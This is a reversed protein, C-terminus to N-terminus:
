RRASPRQSEQDPSAFGAGLVLVLAMSFPAQYLPDHALSLLGFFAIASQAAASPASRAGIRVVCWGLLVIFLLAGPIGTEAAMSLFQNHSKGTNEAVYDPMDPSRFRGPRFQGLGVGAVPHASVARVGAAILQQRDGSGSPTAASLFRTRLPANFALALIAALVAGGGASLVWRAQRRGLRPALLVGLFVIALVLAASAARAYPFVLISVLGVAAVTWAWAKERSPGRTALAMALLVALGGVHAFKLRHFLLGGAMFRGPAGPVEEYVRFFPIRTWSVPAFFERAPWVGVHQLYALLCSVAFVGAVVFALQRHQRPTTWQFARAAAPIAVWDFIRAVGSATPLQGALTPAVLAWAVFVGLPWSKRFADAWDDLSREKLELALVAAVCGVLGASALAELSLCGVAWLLLQAFLV